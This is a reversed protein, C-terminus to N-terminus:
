DLINKNAAQTQRQNYQQEKQYQKQSESQKKGMKQFFSTSEGESIEINNHQVDDNDVGIKKIIVWHRDNNVLLYVKWFLFKTNESKHLLAIKYPKTTMKKVADLLISLKKVSTDDLVKGSRIATDYSNKLHAYKDNLGDINDFIWVQHEQLASTIKAMDEKSLKNEGSITSKAKSIFEGLGEFKPISDFDTPEIYKDKYYDRGRDLIDQLHEIVGQSQNKGFNSLFNSFLDFLKESEYKAKKGEETNYYAVEGNEIHTEFKEFTKLKKM